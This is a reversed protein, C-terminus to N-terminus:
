IAELEEDFMYYQGGVGATKDLAVVFHVPRNNHWVPEKLSIVTGEEGILHGTGGWIMDKVVRVRQGENFKSM